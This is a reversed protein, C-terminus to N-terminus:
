GTRGLTQILGQHWNGAIQVSLAQGTPGSRVSESLCASVVLVLPAQATRLVEKVSSADLMRFAGRRRRRLGSPVPWIEM